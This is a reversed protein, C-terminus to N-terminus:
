FDLMLFTGSGDIESSGDAGDVKHVDLTPSGRMPKVADAFSGNPQSMPPLGGEPVPPPPPPTSPTFPPSTGVSPELPKQKQPTIAATISGDGKQSTAAHAIFAPTSNSPFTSSSNISSLYASYGDYKTPSPQNPGEDTMKCFLLPCLNM